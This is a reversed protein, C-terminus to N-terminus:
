VLTYMNGPVRAIIGDFEMDPLLEMIRRVPLGTRYHLGDPNLSKGEFRLADYIKKTDGELEPFLNRQRAKITMGAPQWGMLEIIDAAREVLAARNRRILSNCGSSATDCTRGPLAMVQRDYDNARAATSMAGGKVESEAVVTLPSLGAIIRNRALFHSRHAPTGGPYETIICGGKKLILRALETHQSPYITHLGHAMVAITRVGAELSAKHAEEDIGYALGSVVALDPFYAALDTILQHVFNRGYPTCRRTGVVSIHHPSDFNCDGLAYILVPADHIQSLAFPFDSDMLYLPRIRHRNVYEKEQRARFLAADREAQQFHTTEGSISLSQRLKETPMTIFDEPSVGYEDMRQVMEATVGPTMSVAIKYTMADDAM